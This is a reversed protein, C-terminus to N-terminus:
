ITPTIVVDVRRNQARGQKTKNSALPKKFGFGEARLKEEEIGNAGLYKAVAQARAQSLVMNAQSTGISDTHGQVVVQSPNLEQAVTRVKALLELSEAPLDTQGSSFAIKKLRIVLDNGQRYVEAEDKNFQKRGEEIAKELSMAATASKLKAGQRSLQGSQQAVESNATGLDQNLDTITSGQNVLNIAVEESATEGGPRKTAALVAVLKATKQKADEVAAQYNSSNNRNASIVNEANTVALEALNLSRPTNSKAGNNRAAAIASRYKGLQTTQIASLELGLYRAQLDAFVKPKVSPRGAQDRFDDDISKLMEQEKPMDRAGATLAANRVDLLGQVNAERGKALDRATDLHGRARALSDIIKEQSDGDKIREKAQDLGERAKSFENSALIDYQATYGAKIDDELRAVEDTPNASESMAAKNGTSSCATLTTMLGAAAIVTTLISSSLWGNKFNM